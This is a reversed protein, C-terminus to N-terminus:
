AAQTRTNPLRLSLVGRSLPLTAPHRRIHNTDPIARTYDFIRMGDWGRVHKRKSKRDLSLVVGLFKENGRSPPKNGPNTTVDLPASPSPIAGDKEIVRKGRGAKDIVGATEYETRVAKIRLARRNVRAIKRSWRDPEAHDRAPTCPASEVWAEVSTRRVDSEAHLLQHKIEAIRELQIGANM